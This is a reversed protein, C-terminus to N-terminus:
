KKKKRIITGQKIIANKTIVTGNNSLGAHRLWSLSVGVDNESLEEYVASISSFYFDKGKGKIHVHIVKM